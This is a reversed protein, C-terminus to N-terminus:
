PGCGAGRLCWETSMATRASVPAPTSGIRNCDPRPNVAAKLRPKDDSGDNVIDLRKQPGQWMTSLNFYGPRSAPELKGTPALVPTNNQGDDAIDLSGCFGQWATSLQYRAGPDSSPDGAAAGLASGVLVCFTVVPIAARAKM